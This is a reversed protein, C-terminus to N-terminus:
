WYTLEEKCAITLVRVYMKFRENMILSVNRNGKM